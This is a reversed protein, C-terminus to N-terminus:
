LAVSGRLLLLVKGCIVCVAGIKKPFAPRPDLHNCGAFRTPAIRSNASSLSM